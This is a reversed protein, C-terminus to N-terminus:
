FLLYLQYLCALRSFCFFAWCFPEAPIVWRAKIIAKTECALIVAATVSDRRVGYSLIV